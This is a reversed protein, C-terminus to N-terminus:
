HEDSGGLMECEKRSYCMAPCVVEGDPTLEEVSTIQGSDDAAPKQPEHTARWEQEDLYYDPHQELRRFKAWGITGWATLSAILVWFWFLVRLESKM